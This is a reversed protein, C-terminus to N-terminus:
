QGFAQACADVWKLTYSISYLCCGGCGTQRLLAVQRTLVGGDTQWETRGGNGAYPDKTGIKYVALGAWLREPRDGCLALWADLTQDFPLTEHCFGFYIQPIIFDCYGDEGCWRRVDAFLTRENKEIDACPSLTFLAPTDAAKAAAYLTRLLANVNERRWDDRAMVGGARKYARYEAKDFDPADTPYFYDDLHIGDPAYDSLLEVVGDLIVQRARQSAPNLFVGTEIVRVDTQGPEKLWQGVVPDQRLRDLAQPDNSLRYPNIWAHVRFGLPRATDLLAAFYDFPLAGGRTSAVCAAAPFLRSPYVADGFPRVQAFLDTIGLDRLATLRATLADCYAQLSAAGTPNWESYSLWVGRKERVDATSQPAPAASLNPAACGCLLLVASLICCFRKM